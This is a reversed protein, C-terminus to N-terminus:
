CARRANEDQRLPARPGGLAYHVTESAGGPGPQGFRGPWCSWSVTELDVLPTDRWGFTFLGPECMSWDPLPSRRIRACPREYSAHSGLAANVVAHEGDWAVRPDGWAFTAAEKPGHRAMRVFRPERTDPDLLVSVHEFDGEHFGAAAVVAGLPDALMRDRDVVAPLYNFPYFFWYQLSIWRGPVGPYSVDAERHVYMQVSEFPNLGAPITAWRAIADGPIRLARAVDCFQEQTRDVGGPYDVYDGEAGSRLEALELDRALGGGAVLRTRRDAELEALVTVSVPWFRDVSAVRLVPQYRLAESALEPTTEVVTPEGGVARGLTQPIAPAGSGIPAASAPAAVLAPILAPTSASVAHGCARDVGLFKEGEGRLWSGVLSIALAAVLGVLLAAAIAM